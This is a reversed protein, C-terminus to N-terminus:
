AIFILRLHIRIISFIYFLESLFIIIQRGAFCASTNCDPLEPATKM